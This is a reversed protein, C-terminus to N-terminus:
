QQRAEIQQALFRAAQAFAPLKAAVERAKTEDYAHSTANRADRFVSWIDWSESLPGRTFGLRILQPFSLEAVGGPE